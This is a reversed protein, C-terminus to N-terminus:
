SEEGDETKRFDLSIPSFDACCASLVVCILAQLIAISSTNQADAAIRASISWSFSLGKREMVGQRATFTRHFSRVGEPPKCSAYRGAQQDGFDGAFIGALKPTPMRTFKLQHVHM